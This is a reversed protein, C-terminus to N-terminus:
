SSIVVNPPVIVSGQPVGRTVEGKRETNCIKEDRRYLKEVGLSEERYRIQTQTRNNQLNDEM